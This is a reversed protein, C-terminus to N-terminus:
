ASYLGAAAAMSKLIVFLAWPVMIAALAKGFSIKRAATSVGIAILIMIWLSFFDISSGVARLAAPTERSLFAGVNFMLPNQLDFEEPDKLFLVVMSLATQILMPLCSYSVIAMMRKM